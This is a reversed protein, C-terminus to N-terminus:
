IHFEVIDGDQLIHNKEVRQGSFGKENWLRTFQLCKKFDKHIYEAAEIVTSGQPLVIPDKRVPPQGIKKTYVRIINLKKFILQKLEQINILKTASIKLTDFKDPYFDLFIQSFDNANEEDIKNLLIIAKKADTQDRDIFINRVKLQEYIEEMQEILNDNSADLVVLILDAFRFASFLWAPASETIPPTDVIQIKIDEYEMMGIQFKTTTFPYPAVEVNTRTLTNLLASKGVNPLGAIVVQGAGQREVQYWATSGTSKKGKEMLEKTKSIKAKLEAQLKETGKHKPIIALLEQLYFLKEQPTKAERYKKEVDFYQPPLNAPM